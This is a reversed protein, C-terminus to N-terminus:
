DHALALRTNIALDALTVPKMLVKTIDINLLKESNLRTSFGTCLIIPVDKRIKRIEAALNEGTINPMTMDSIILDYKNPNVRFAELADISSARTEVRYGLGELLEKGIELLLKEDDVFLISETGRPLQGIIEDAKEPKSEVTPLFIQFSTGRDLESYVKISGSHDKIIGHVTSLGMGTGEGITKTTFYPDFIKPLIEAPIGSGTDTVILKLYEGPDLDPHNITDKVSITTTVLDVHILGSKDAIAHYANTCLNMIVQHIQTENAVVASLQSAINKSIEINAPITARILSLAEGVIRSIDCPIKESNSLRSFSLIQQVLNKARLSATSLQDLFHQVKPNDSCNLKSLETYGIIASLINNFDHAIGGALTGLSELKQIQQLHAELKARQLANNKRDSIDRVFSISYQKGDYELFNSTIEVPFSIGNKARHVTEFTVVEETCLKQWIEHWNTHDVTPDIDFITMNCLETETYALSKCAQENVNLIRADSGCRFIGMAARDFSFQTLLLAERVKIRETINQVFAAACQQGEFELLNVNVEVPFTTGDKRRNIGEVIISKRKCLEEWISDWSEATITPDIDYVSLNLLEELSYGLSQAATSNAYLYRGQSDHWFFCLASNDLCFKSFRSQEANIKQLDESFPTM